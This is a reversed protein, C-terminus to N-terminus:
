HRHSPHRYVFADLRQRQEEDLSRDLRQLAGLWDVNETVMAEYTRAFLEQGGFLPEIRQSAALVARRRAVPDATEAEITRWADDQDPRLDLTAKLSPRRELWAAREADLEEDNAIAGPPLPATNEKLEVVLKRQKANLQPVLWRMANIWELDGAAQASRWRNFLALDDLLRGSQHTQAELTVDDLRADQSAIRLELQKWLTAQVPQIDLMTHLQRVREDRESRLNALVTAADPDPELSAAEEALLPQVWLTLAILAAQWPKRNLYSAPM